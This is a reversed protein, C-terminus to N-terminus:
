FKDQPLKKWKEELGHRTLIDTLKEPCLVGSEIFAQIRAYDKGRGTQLAIAVLHEASFVPVKVDEYDMELANALAEEILPNFAPLFQVPIGAIVVCEKDEQFGAARLHNYLPTLTILSTDSSQPLAVFVDLDFTSIPEIYFIAAMAGGLAYDTIVGSDRMKALYQVTERM